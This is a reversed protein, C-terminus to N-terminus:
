LRHKVQAFYKQFYAEELNQTGPNHILSILLTIEEQTLESLAHKGFYVELAAGIGYLQNGFYADQLYMHLIHEKSQTADVELAIIVERLKQFYSRSTSQFYKNKVYQETITSGGSM